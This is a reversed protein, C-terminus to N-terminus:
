LKSQKQKALDVWSPKPQNNDKIISSSGSPPPRKLHSVQVKSPTEVPKNMSTPADIQIKPENEITLVPIPKEQAISLVPPQVPEVSSVFPVTEEKHIVKKNQGLRIQNFMNEFENTKQRDNNTFPLMTVPRQRNLASLPRGRTQVISNASSDNENSETDPIINIKHRNFIYFNDYIHEKSSSSTLVPTKNSENANIDQLVTEHKNEKQEIEKQTEQEEEDKNTKLLSQNNDATQKTEQQRKFNVTRAISPSYTPATSTSTLINDVSRDRPRPTIRLRSQAKQLQSLDIVSQSLIKSQYFFAFIRIIEVNWRRKVESKLPFFDEEDDFNNSFLDVQDGDSEKLM